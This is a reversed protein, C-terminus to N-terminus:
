SIVTVEARDGDVRVVAGDPIRHSGNVTGVVAPFGMERAVIGAHSAFSGHDTVIAGVLHLFSNFAEGTTPSVVVDGPELEFLDDVTRVHRARGEYVGRNASIGGIRRDDGVPEHLEGLVGDIFFGTAGMVQQLPPPLQDLPPPAPPPEGLFRPADAASLSSRLGARQALETGSPGGDGFLAPLEEPLVDLILEPDEIRGRAALRRGAELLGLRVLGIASVDSYLGREDRLRYVCRAEELLDDWAALHEPDLQSRLEDAAREARAKAATPDAALGAALRGLVLHPQEGLTPNTTDFGDVIRYGTDAVFDAVAPVRRCLEALREDAPGDGELLAQADADARLAAVAPGMEPPLPGSVDSYGDLLALLSRPDRRVWPAATLLFMGVPLMASVNFRHHQYVMARTHELCTDIHALLAADDLTGLDVAYLERHRAVATPKLERDWLALDERWVRGGLAATAVETRRGIEAGLQEPSPPGDPGPLDFPQLQHYTFGNVTRMALRDLLLGYRAFTEEFGREFSAPYTAAMLPTVAVPNHARDQQWPGPGPADWTIGGDAM